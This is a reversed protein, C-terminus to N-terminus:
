HVPILTLQRAFVTMNGAASLTHMCRINFDGGATFTEPVLLTCSGRYRGPQTGVVIGIGDETTATHILTGSGVVAGARIEYALYAGVSNTNTQIHGSVSVLIKTSQPGKFAFGLQTGATMTTATIGTYDTFDDAQITPESVSGPGGMQVWTSNDARWGYVTWPSKVVVIKGDARDVMAIADRAAIDAVMTANANATVSSPLRAAAITGSTIKAADLNPIFATGFVGTTIKAVDLAPVADVPIAAGGGGTGLIKAGSLNPIRAVAISGSSIKSADVNQVLQSGVDLTAVGSAAGLASSNVKGAAAAEIATLRAAVSAAVGKPSIGLETEIANIADNVNTHLTAHVVGATDLNDGATPDTFNDIAAPYATAM